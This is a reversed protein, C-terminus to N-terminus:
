MDSHRYTKIFKFVDVPSNTVATVGAALLRDRNEVGRHGAFILLPTQHGAARIARAFDLGAFRNERGAEKRGLDSIVIDFSDNVMASVGADTSLEKRIRVGENELKEIIFANNSPFDDVWLVSLKNSDQLEGNESNGTAIRKELLAVREQLDSIGKGAQETADKVSIEMGAVKITLTERNLLQIVFKRFLIAIIILALPWAFQAVAAWFEPKILLERMM